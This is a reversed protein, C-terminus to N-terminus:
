VVVKGNAPVTVGAAELARRRAVEVARRLYVGVMERRYEAPARADTAPDIADDVLRVASAVAEPELRTGLLAREAEVPKVPTSAVGSLGIGIDGCTGDEGLTLQVAIGIVAFDGVRRELKLYAGGSRPGPRRLRLETALETPELAPTLFDVFFDEAPITRQGDRSACRVEAGLALVAPGWDGAPDAEALAGVVTGLNRVQIDGVTVAVDRVLPIETALGGPEAITAHRVLAGISVWGDEHAVADLGSLTNLDILIRPNALRLKMLPILSQGGALPRVDEGHEAMLDLVHDVSEARVYDFNRPYM